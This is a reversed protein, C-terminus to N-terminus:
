ASTAGEVAEMAGAGMAVRAAVALIMVAQNLDERNTATIAMIGKFETIVVQIRLIVGPM